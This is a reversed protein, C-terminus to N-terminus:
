FGLHNNQRVLIIRDLKGVERSLGMGEMHELLREYAVNPFAQLVDLYLVSTVQKRRWRDKITQILQLLPDVM